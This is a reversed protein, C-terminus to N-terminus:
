LGPINIEQSSANELMQKLKDIQKRLESQNTRLDNVLKVPALLEGVRIAIQKEFLRVNKAYTEVQDLCHELEQKNVNSIADKIRNKDSIRDQDNPQETQKRAERQGHLIRAAQDFLFDVAKAVVSFALPDMNTM